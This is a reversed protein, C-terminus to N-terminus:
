LHLEQVCKMLVTPHHGQTVPEKDSTAVPLPHVSVVPYFHLHIVAGLIEPRTLAGQRTEPEEM